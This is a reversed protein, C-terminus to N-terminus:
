KVASEEGLKVWSAPKFHKSYREVLINRYVPLMKVIKLCSGGQSRRFVRFFAVPEFVLMSAAAAAALCVKFFVNEPNQAYLGLLKRTIKRPLYPAIRIFRNQATKAYEYYDKQKPDQFRDPYERLMRDHLETGHYTTLSYLQLYYPRAAEIFANITELNDEMTEFPNDVIVDSYVATPYEQFIELANLFHKRLSKRKFVEKLTRDSGSQLGMRVWVLGADKLLAIKERTVFMPTGSFMFPRNVRRRYEDKFAKFFELNHTLFNEDQFNILELYPYDRAANELELMINELSRKRVRGTGYLRSILPSCCYTCNLQCGLTSTIDYFKGLYRGHKKLVRRDIPSVVGDKKLAFGNKPIHEVLPLSDLNEVLPHLPNRITRGNERYCLNPVARADRGHSLADAFHVVTRLGEGVCVYDAFPFCSEPDITPHIGGWIVTTGPFHKKLFVSLERARQYELSMLSIGIFLPNVRSVFQKLNQLAGTDDPDFNPVHLFYSNHGEQLLCYHLYKIGIVSLDAQVAILLINEAKQGPPTKAPFSPESMEFSHYLM